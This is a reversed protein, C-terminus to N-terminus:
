AALSLRHMEFAGSFMSDHKFISMVAETGPTDARVCTGTRAASPRVGSTGRLLPILRHLLPASAIRPLAAFATAAGRNGYHRISQKSSNRSGSGRKASVVGHTRSRSLLTLSWGSHQLLSRLIHHPAKPAPTILPMMIATVCSPSDALDHKMLSVQGGCRQSPVPSPVPTADEGVRTGCSRNASSDIVPAQTAGETLM